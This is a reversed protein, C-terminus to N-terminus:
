FVTWYMKEGQVNLYSDQQGAFSADPLDEATASSRVAVLAGSPQSEGSLRLYAEVIEVQLDNVIAEQMIVTRIQGAKEEVDNLKEWDVSDLVLHIKEELGSVAKKYAEVSICFGTPVPFDAKVLEGLNAGKGGVLALENKDLEDFCYIYRSKM